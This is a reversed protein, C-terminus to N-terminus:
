QKKVETEFNKQITLINKGDQYEYTVKDMSKKVIYVGLGGVERVEAKASIDPDKLDLPNFQIGSDIFTIAVSKPDEFIEIQVTAKGVKSQYAYRAINSFIEDIAVDIQTIVKLPCSSLELQENIFDTIPDINEITADLTKELMNKDGKYELGLMTIDDFQPADGVFADISEKVAALLEHMSKNSNKVLTKQLNDMGFLKNTSDTAETVGDTYQFLKDGPKLTISGGKYHLGDMGALVFGAKVPFPKYVEGKECIFPIEHGANVYRFEGTHINLVGEFATIFMEESNSACLIDNVETFVDGLDSHFATHDKILTKGIVMFLAAPVGKGSVDAVVIALHDNDVMFFDYFDGGVEKAPNMMAFIEFEKRNPFPPFICPLMSAQIKAAVDLEAGIREKESTVISLRDIYDHIEGYMQSFSNSLEEIENGTKINIEPKIGSELNNVIQKTENNLTQIPIIVRKWEFYFSAFASLIVLIIIVINVSMLASTIESKINPVLLDVAVIAVPDGERNFIPSCATAIYIGNEYGSIVEEAANQSFVSALFEKTGETYEDYKVTDGLVFTDGIKSVDVLFLIDDERPVGIYFDHIDSNNLNATLYNEIETYYNDKEGTNIYKELADGDIFEAAAKTYAFAMTQSKEKQSNVNQYLVVSGICLILVLAYLIYSILITKVLKRKKM